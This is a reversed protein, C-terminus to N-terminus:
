TTVIEVGRWFAVHHKVTKAAPKPDPYYWAADPNEQGDVLVTYYRAMGKWPCSSSTTSPKLFARNVTEEPFYINGEVTEIKESEALTQGNWIAKAMEAGIMETLYLLCGMKGILALHEQAATKV